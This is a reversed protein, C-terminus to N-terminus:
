RKAGEGARARGPTLTLKTQRPAIVEGTKLNYEMREGELLAPGSEIRVGGQLTVWQREQDLQLHQASLHVPEQKPKEKPRRYVGKAEMMEYPGRAKRNTIQKATAAFTWAGGPDAVAIEANELTTRMPRPPPESKEKDEVGRVGRRGCGALVALALLALITLYGVRRYM